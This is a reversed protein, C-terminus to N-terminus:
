LLGMRRQQKKPLSCGPRKVQRSQAMAMIRKVAKANLRRSHKRALRRLQEITHRYYIRGDILRAMNFALFRTLATEPKKTTGSSM